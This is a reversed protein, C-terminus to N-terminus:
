PPIWSGKYTALYLKNVSVVLIIKLTGVKGVLVLFKLLTTSIKGIIM